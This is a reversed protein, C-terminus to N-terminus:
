GGGAALSLGGSVAAYQWDLGSSGMSVLRQGDSGTAALVL